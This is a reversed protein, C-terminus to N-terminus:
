LFAEPEKRDSFNEKLWGSIKKVFPLDMIRAHNPCQKVCACCKICLNPDTEVTAGVTIAGKPCAEACAGCTACMDALTRAAGEVAPPRDKYPFNGPVNLSIAIDAGGLDSIRRKVAAGFEVAKELDGKDPRGTALPVDDTSFSHEGIFAAAAVPVFGLEKSLNALELLADEYARNGYVVVLVAKAGQARFRKFREIADQPLRGAHVPAGLVVLEDTFEEFPKAAWAPSTMDLHEVPKVGLGEAIAELVKKTTGTPSFYALKLASFSM